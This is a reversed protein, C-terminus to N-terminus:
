LRTREEEREGGVECLKSVETYPCDEAVEHLRPSQPRRQRERARCGGCHQRLHQEHM